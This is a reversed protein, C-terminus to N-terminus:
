QFANAWLGAADAGDSPAVTAEPAARLGRRGNRAVAVVGRKAEAMGRQQLGGMKLGGMKLGPRAPPTRTAMLNPRGARKIKNQFSVAKPGMSQSRRRARPPSTVKSISSSAPSRPKKARAGTRKPSKYPSTYAGRRGARRLVAAPVKNKSVPKSFKGPSAAPTAMVFKPPSRPPASLSRPIAQKIYVQWNVDKTDKLHSVFDLALRVRGSSELQSPVPDQTSANLAALVAEPPVTPSWALLLLRRLGPHRNAIADGALKGARKVLDDDGGRAALSETFATKLGALRYALVLDAYKTIHIDIKADDGEPAAARVGDPGSAALQQLSESDRLAVFQRLTRRNARKRELEPNPPEEPIAFTVGRGRGGAGGKKKKRRPPRAKRAGAQKELLAELEKRERPDTAGKRAGGNGGGKIREEVAKQLDDYVTKPTAERRASKVLIERAEPANKKVFFKMVTCCKQVLSNDGGGGLGRHFVQMVRRLEMPSKAMVPKRAIVDIQQRAKRRRARLRKRKPQLARDTPVSPIRVPTRPKNIPIKPKPEPVSPKPEPGADDDGTGDIDVGGDDDDIPLIDNLDKWEDLGDKNKHTIRNFLAELFEIYHRAEVGVTWLDVMEFLGASFQEFSMTDEEPRIQQDVEPQADAEATVLGDGEASTDCSNAVRILGPSADDTNKGACENKQVGRDRDFDEHALRLAEADSLDGRLTKSMKRHVLVYQERPIGPLDQEEPKSEAEGNGKGETNKGNVGKGDKSDLTRGTEDGKGAIQGVSGDVAAVSAGKADGVGKASRLGPAKHDVARSRGLTAMHLDWFRQIRGLVEPHGAFSKREKVIDPRDFLENGQEHYPIDPRRVGPTPPLEHRLLESSDRFVVADDPRWMRSVPRAARVVEPGGQEDSEM